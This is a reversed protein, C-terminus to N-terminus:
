LAVNEITAKSFSVITLEAKAGEPIAIFRSVAPLNPAGETGPLFVGPLSIGQVTSGNHQKNAISFSEISFNVIVDQSSQSVVSLGHKEWADPYKIENAITIIFTFVLTILISLKKM